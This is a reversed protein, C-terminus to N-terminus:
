NTMTFLTIPLGLRQDDITIKYDSITVPDQTKLDKFTQPITTTSTLPPFDNINFIGNVTEQILANDSKETFYRHYCIQTRPNVCITLVGKISGIQAPLSYLDDGNKWKSRIGHKEWFPDVASSFGHQVIKKMFNPCGEYEPFTKLDISGEVPSTFWRSVRPHYTFFLKIPAPRPSSCEGIEESSSETKVIETIPGEEQSTEDAETQSSSSSLSKVKIVRVPPLPSKRISDKKKKSAPASSTREIRKDIMKELYELPETVVFEKRLPLSRELFSKSDNSSLDAVPDSGTLQTLLDYVYEYLGIRYRSGNESYYADKWISVLKSSERGTLGPNKENTDFHTKMFPSVRAVVTNWIYPNAEKFLKPAVDFPELNMLPFKNRQKDVHDRLTSSKCGKIKGNLIELFQMLNHFDAQILYFQGDEALKKITRSFGKWTPYNRDQDNNIELEIKSHIDLLSKALGPNFHYSDILEKTTAQKIIRQFAMLLAWQDVPMSSMEILIRDYEFQKAHEIYVCMRDTVEFFRAEFRIWSLIMQYTKKLTESDNSSGVVNSILKEHSFLVYIKKLTEAKRTEEQVFKNITDSYLSKSEPNIKHNLFEFFKVKPKEGQPGIHWGETFRTANERLRTLDGIKATEGAQEVTLKFLGFISMPNRYEPLIRDYLPAKDRQRNCEELRDNLDNLDSFQSTVTIIESHISM